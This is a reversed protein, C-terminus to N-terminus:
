SGGFGRRAHRSLPTEPRHLDGERVLLFGQATLQSGVEVIQHGGLDRVFDHAALGTPGVAELGDALHTPVAPETDAPRLLVTALAAALDLLEDEEVLSPPDAGGDREQADVRHALRDLLEPRVLLLREEQGADQGALQMRRDAVGLGRGPGVQRRQAGGGDLVAVLPDDVALLDVRRQGAVGVVDPQGGAGVGIRGLVLADRDEEVGPNEYVFISVITFALVNVV